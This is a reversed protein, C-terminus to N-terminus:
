RRNYVCYEGRQEWLRIKDSVIDEKLQNEVYNKIKQKNKGITSVYYGKCLFTRNGYKYKLNAHREFIMLTSKGKMGWCFGDGFVKAAYRCVLTHPRSMGGSGNDSGGQAQIAGM